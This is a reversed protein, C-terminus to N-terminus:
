RLLIRGFAKASKTVYAALSPVTRNHVTLNVARSGHNMWLTKYSEDGKLFDYVRFGSNIAREINIGCLVNGISLDPRFERDVLMMYMRTANRDVLHILGGVIRDDTTTILSLDLAGSSRTAMAYSELFQFLPQADVNWRREYLQRLAALWRELGEDDAVVRHVVAPISLLVRTERRLLKRRHASLTAFYEEYSSPLVVQPCYSGEEVNYQKGTRRLYMLMQAVVPSDSPMENFSLIDWQSRLEGFLAKFLTTVVAPEKGKRALVTLYDSGSEPLGLFGVARPRFTGNEGTIYLPAIGITEGSEVVRLAFLRRPTTIFHRAWSYNWEWRSFASSHEMQATVANWEPKLAELGAMTDIVCVVPDPKATARAGVDSAGAHTAISM